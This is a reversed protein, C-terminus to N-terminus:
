GCYMGVVSLLKEFESGDLETLRRALNRGSVVEEPDITQDLMQLAKLENILADREEIGGPYRKEEFFLYLQEGSFVTLIRDKGKGRLGFSPYQARGEIFCRNELAWDLM